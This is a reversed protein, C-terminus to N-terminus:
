KRSRRTKRSVRKHKRTKRRRGGHDASTTHSGPVSYFGQGISVIREPVVALLMKKDEDTTEQTNWVKGLERAANHELKETTDYAERRPVGNSMKEGPTPENMAKEIAAKLDSFKALSEPAVYPAPAPPAAPTSKSGKNGM